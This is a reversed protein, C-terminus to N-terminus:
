LIYDISMVILFRFGSVVTVIVYTVTDKLYAATIVIYPQFQKRYKDNQPIVTKAKGM